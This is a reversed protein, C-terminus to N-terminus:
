HRIQFPSFDVGLIHLYEPQRLRIKVPLQRTLNLRQRTQVHIPTIRLGPWLLGEITCNVNWCPKFLTLKIRVIAARFFAAKRGHRSAVVHSEVRIAHRNPSQYVCWPRRDLSGHFTYVGRCDLSLSRKNGASLVKGDARYGKLDAGSTRLM